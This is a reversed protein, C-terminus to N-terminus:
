EYSSKRSDSLNDFKTYKGDFFLRVTGVPGHRQKAVIVEALNYIKSMKDLWEAHKPTGPSPERRAEYYEERYVFMVVDADQEISGSERLDALQPRKDDRAEVARSLQSLALVPIDLEKALAKLARTIEAIEQVRNENRKDSNGSLLQLYDIVILDLGYQRKLKRARTRLFQATLAPTDDIFLPLEALNKNAEVIKMFDEDKIEGRRIRESPIACEQSLVRTVLQESSMELSFFAVKGGGDANKMRAMAAHFAINTALATKGMSPRGALIILDSRNLGGLLKNLDIFGSTVGTISSDSKYAREAIKIADASAGSFSVLGRQDNAVSLDYLRTEAKEIQDKAKSNLEFTLAEQSMDEGILILQRRLYLEYILKAYDNVGSISVVANVLQVLYDGGGVDRLEDHKEFYAKLTIPDAILGQSILKGIADFIKGNVATAFHVPFLSESINEFCENNLMIAGLLSQEAEINHPLVRMKQEKTTNMVDLSDLYM